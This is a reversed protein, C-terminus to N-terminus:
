RTGAPSARHPAALRGRLLRVRPAAPTAWPAPPVIVVGMALRMAWAAFRPILRAWKKGWVFTVAVVKRAPAHRQCAPARLGHDPREHAEAWTCGRARCDAASIGSHGCELRSPVAAFRVVTMVADLADAM